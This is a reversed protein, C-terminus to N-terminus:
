YCPAYLSPPLPSLCKAFSLNLIYMPASTTTGVLSHSTFPVLTLYSCPKRSSCILLYHCRKNLYPLFHNLFSFILLERPCPFNSIGTHCGLLLHELKSSSFLNLSSTFVESNNGYLWCKFGYFLISRSSLGPYLGAQHIPPPFPPAQLSHGLCVSPPLNYPSLVTDGSPPHEQYVSRLSSLSTDMANLLSTAVSPGKLLLKVPTICVLSHIAAQFYCWLRFRDKRGSEWDDRKAFWDEQRM